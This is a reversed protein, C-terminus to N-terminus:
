AVKVYINVLASLDNYVPIETDRFCLYTVNNQSYYKGLELEMNNNYPIPDEKTGEHLVNIETYLSATNISPPYVEQVTHKQIVKYLKDNYWLREGVQVETGIKSYWTDALEKVKLAEQDDLEKFAAKAQPMMVLAMAREMSYLDPELQPISPEPEPPIYEVWGDALIQEETPNITQMGDKNVVIYNAYKIENDKIYQKM